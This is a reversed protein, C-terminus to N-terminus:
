RSTQFFEPCVDPGSWRCFMRGCVIQRACGTLQWLSKIRETEDWGAEVTIIENALINYKSNQNVCIQITLVQLGQYFFM